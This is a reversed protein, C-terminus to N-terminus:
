RVCVLYLLSLRLALFELHNAHFCTLFCRQLAECITVLLLMYLNKPNLMCCAVHLMCCAVHLMCCAVHVLTHDGLLLQAQLVTGTVNYGSMIITSNNEIKRIDLSQADARQPFGLCCCLVMLLGASVSVRGM